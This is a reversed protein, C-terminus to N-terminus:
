ERIMRDFESAPYTPITTGTERKAYDQYLRLRVPNIDCLGVVESTDHFMRYLGKQWMEARHGAGVIAYRKRSGPAHRPRSYATGTLVAGAGAAAAVKIFQRRTMEQEADYSHTRM